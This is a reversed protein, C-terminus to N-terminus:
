YLKNLFTNMGKITKQTLNYDIFRTYYEKLDLLANPNEQVIYNLNKFGIGNAANFEEVFEEPLIKNSVWAAFVFPLGTHAKWAEGLDYCYKSQLRQEFARDGIVLGGTTGKIKERFDEGTAYVTRANSKWHERLLIKALEVSTKSQYDLYITDVEEIPVDSFICVSAVPGDCGICYNTIIHSEKLKPITAVPVLGVDVTGELLLTAVQAPFTEFLEIENFFNSRKIGYLLPKTNLYNVAAVKIKTLHSVKVPM